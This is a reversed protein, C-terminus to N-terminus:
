SDGPMGTISVDIARITDDLLMKKNLVPVELSLIFLVIFLLHSQAVSSQNMTPDSALTQQSSFWLLITKNDGNM